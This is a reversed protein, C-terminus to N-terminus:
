DMHDAWIAKGDWKVLNFHNYRAYSGTEFGRDGKRIIHGTSYIRNEDPMEYGQQGYGGDTPRVMKSMLEEAKATKNSVSVIRFWVPYHMSYHWMGQLIDGVKLESKMTAKYNIPRLRDAM